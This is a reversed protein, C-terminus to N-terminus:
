AQQVSEDSLSPPKAAPDDPKLLGLLCRLALEIGALLMAGFGIPM